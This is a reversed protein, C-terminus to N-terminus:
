YENPSTFSHSLLRLAACAPCASCQAASPATGAAGAKSVGGLVGGNARGPGCGPSAALQCVCKHWSEETRRSVQLCDPLDLKLGLPELVRKRDKRKSSLRIIREAPFLEQPDHFILLERNWVWSYNKQKFINRSLLYWLYCVCSINSWKM